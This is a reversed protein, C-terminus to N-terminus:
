TSNNASKNIWEYIELSEPVCSTCGGCKKSLIQKVRGKRILRKLMPRVADVDSRVHLAIEELSAKGYKGLYKQINTLTM